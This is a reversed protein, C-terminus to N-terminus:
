YKHIQFGLFRFNCSDAMFRIDIRDQEPRYIVQFESYTRSITELGFTNVVNSVQNLTSFYLQQLCGIKALLRQSFDLVDQCGTTKGQAHAKFVPRRGSKVVIFVSSRGSGSYLSKNHAMTLTSSFQIAVATM